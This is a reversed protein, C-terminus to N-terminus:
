RHSKNFNVLTLIVYTYILHENLGFHEHILKVYEFLSAYRIFHDYALMNIFNIKSTHVHIYHIM